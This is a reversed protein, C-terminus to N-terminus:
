EGGHWRFARRFGAAEAEAVTMAFFEGPKDIKCSDYQQDFPLHYIKTKMGYEDYNINCKICPYEGLPFNEVVEIGLYKAFKRATASLSINTVFVGKAQELTLGNEFCYCVLTGYLQNIHKEHITKKASWYKCQIILSPRKKHTAILDRGLDELGHLSGYYEVSYGKQSYRYGIYNEYDRGIQWKSKRHSHLYRDLALQNRESSSLNCYEEASLYNRVVDYNDDSIDTFDVIPLQSYDTELFDELAPFMKLVYSLRYEAEKSQKLLAQTERRLTRLSTVKKSREISYGWDLQRALIELGRTDFDAIIGAMYPLATLNSSLKAEHAALQNFNLEYSREREMIRQERENLEQERRQLSQEKDWNKISAKKSEEAIDKQLAKRKAELAIEMEKQKASLKAYQTIYDNKNARRQRAASILSIISILFLILAITLAVYPHM